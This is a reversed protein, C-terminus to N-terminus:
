GTSYCIEGYIIPMKNLFKLRTFGLSTFEEQVTQFYSASFKGLANFVNQHIKIRFQFKILSLLNYITFDYIGPKKIIFIYPIFIANGKSSFSVGEGGQEADM